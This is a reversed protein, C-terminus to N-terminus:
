SNKNSIYNKRSFSIFMGVLAVAMACLMVVHYASMFSGTQEASPSSVGGLAEFLTVSFAIGMVMGVNRVLSNIAGSIGVKQSPVSSMVSSNNPSQFMGSGLGMIMAGIIVQYFKADAKLTTFYFLGIAMAGLGGTTLFEPGFKDSLYGSIPAVVAMAMPFAMLLLGVHAPEYHLVQQLYFPLLMNNAFMAIFSLGGAINGILFPRIKFLSLDIMPFNIKKEVFIFVILMIIGIVIGSIVPLSTWGLDSGNNIAFLLSVMGVCFLAAGAFDFKEKDKSPQDVPLILLSYVYGLIGIPVNIYFISRWGAIGIIMGGLAPGTMSGLAVITGSLGLARGREHIPFIATIIAFGNSMLMSAGIAQLVRAAILFWLNPAFGCMASGITFVLFGFGYVKKRGILDACRGFVPLLSSITLLYATVVM